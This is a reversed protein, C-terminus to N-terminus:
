ILSQIAAPVHAAILKQAGALAEDKRAGFVDTALKTFDADQKEAAVGKEKALTAVLENYGKELIAAQRASVGAKHFV